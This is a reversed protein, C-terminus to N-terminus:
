GPCACSAWRGCPAARPQTALGDAHGLLEAVAHAEEVNAEGGARVVVGEGEDVARKGDGEGAGLVKGVHELVQIAEEVVVGALGEDHTEFTLAGALGGVTPHGLVELVAVDVLAAVAPPGLGFDGGEALGAALNDDDAAEAEVVVHAVAAPLAAAPADVSLLPGVVAFVAGAAVAVEADLVKVFDGLLWFM